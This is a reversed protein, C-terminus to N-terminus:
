CIVIVNELIDNLSKLGGRRKGEVGGFSIPQYVVIAENEILVTTIDRVVKIEAPVYYVAIMVGKGGTM